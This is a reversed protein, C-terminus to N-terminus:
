PALAIAIGDDVAGPFPLTYNPPLTFLGAAMDASVLVRVKEGAEAHAAPLGARASPDTSSCAAVAAVCTLLAIRWWARWQHVQM